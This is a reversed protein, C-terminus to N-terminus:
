QAVMRATTAAAPPPPAPAPPPSAPATTRIDCSHQVFSRGIKSIIRFMALDGWLRYLKRIKGRAHMYVLRLLRNVFTVCYVSPCHIV